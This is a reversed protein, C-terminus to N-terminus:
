DHMKSGHFTLLNCYKSAIQFGFIMNKQYSFDNLNVNQRFFFPAHLSGFTSLNNRQIPGIKAKIEDVDRIDDMVVTMGKQINSLIIDATYPTYDNLVYLSM